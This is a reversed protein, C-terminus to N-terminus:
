KEEVERVREKKRLQASIGMAAALIVFAQILLDLGRNAWLFQPSEDMSTLELSSAKLNETIKPSYALLALALSVSLIAALARTAEM